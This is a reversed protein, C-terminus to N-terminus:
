THDPSKNSAINELKQTPFYFIWLPAHQTPPGADALPHNPHLSAQWVEDVIDVVDVELSLAKGTEVTGDCHGAAVADGVGLIETGLVKRELTFNEQIGKYLYHLISAYVNM